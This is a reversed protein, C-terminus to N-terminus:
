AAINLGGPLRLLGLLLVPFLATAPVSATIQVLPQMRRAWRPNTGIWVGVPITWAAALILAVTTRLFTAGASIAVLRWQAADLAIVIHLVAYIGWAAFTAGGIAAVAVIARQTVSDPEASQPFVIVGPPTPTPILARDIARW